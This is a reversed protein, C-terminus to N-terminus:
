WNGVAKWKKSLNNYRKKSLQIERYEIKFLGYNYMFLYGYKIEMLICINHLKKQWKHKLKAASSNNKPRDNIDKM